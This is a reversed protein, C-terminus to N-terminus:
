FPLRWLPRSAGGLCVRFAFQNLFRQRTSKSDIRLRVRFTARFVSVLTSCVHMYVCVHLCLVCVLCVCPVGCVCWLCVGCVAQVLGDLTSELTVYSEAQIYNGGGPSSVGRLEAVDVDRGIGVVVVRVGARRLEAAHRATLERDVDARSDTLLVAVRRAARAPRAGGWATFLQTRAM